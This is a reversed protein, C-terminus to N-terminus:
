YIFNTFKFYYYLLSICYYIYLVMCLNKRINKSVHKLDAYIETVVSVNALTKNSDLDGDICVELLLDSEELIPTIQELLAILIAHEMQRSSADFNGQRVVEKKESGDKGKKIVVRSKEVVHFAIVAKHKYGLIYFYILNFINTFLL